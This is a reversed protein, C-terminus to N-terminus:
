LADPKEGHLRKAVSDLTQQGLTLFYDTNTMKDVEVRAAIALVDKWAEAEAKTWHVDGEAQSDRPLTEAPRPARSLAYHLGATIAGAVGLAGLAWWLLLGHEWLYLGGLPVLTLTPLLVAAGAMVSQTPSSFRVKRKPKSEQQMTM